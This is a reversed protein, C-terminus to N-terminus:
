FGAFKSPECQECKSMKHEITKTKQYNLNLEIMLANPVVVIHIEVANLSHTLPLVIIVNCYKRIMQNEQVIYKKGFIAFQYYHMCLHCLFLLVLISPLLFSLYSVAM